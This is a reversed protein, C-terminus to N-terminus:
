MTEVIRSAPLREKLKSSLVRETQTIVVLPIKGSVAKDLYSQMKKVPFGSKIYFGHRGRIVKLGFFQGAYLAQSNYFEVYAGVQFFILHDRFQRRFYHYQSYLNTFSRKPQYTRKLKGKIIKFFESLCKFKKFLHEVLRHTKAHKFHGLYSNLSQFLSELLPYDYTIRIYNGTTYILEKEYTYKLNNVVRRRSLLYKPRIIYGLFDIGNDIPQITQRKPNLSLRLLKEVYTEIEDKWEQLREKERDLLVLDDCYRMYFRCKLHHKIFQDLGNLYANAFFQSTLNGIPLGRENNTGFLSKHPPVKEVLDSKGKIIYNETCDHFIIVRALWLINEDRCKDAIIKYLIEKHIAVFFNRIDLQLFHAQRTGNTTLSRTFKQLRQVALHNGKGRRCAYTDFIFIPEWIKELESVLIHHVIRDRFDAAFIERLKPEWPINTTGALTGFLRNSISWRIM